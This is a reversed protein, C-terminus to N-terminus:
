EANVRQKLVRSAYMEQKTISDQLLKECVMEGRILSRRVMAGLLIVDKDRIMDAAKRMEDESILSMKQSCVVDM